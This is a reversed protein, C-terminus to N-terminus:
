DRKPGKDAKLTENIRDLSERLAKLEKELQDLRRLVDGSGNAASSEMGGGPAALKGVLNERDVMWLRFVGETTRSEVTRTAPTLPITLPKGARLIKLTTPKEGNAQVERSLTEPSDVRKEGMELVIDHKKVGAKEAPSGGIVETVVVGQGAPVGLQARLADDVPEISVGIYYESKQQAAPGLTVRYVPRVQITLPKGARLVKLPVASEGAAKLRSTLDEATALPKDALALLIDNQKLGAQASPGDARLSTVLLGQGAPIDLQSRLTDGVPQLAAGLLNDAQDHLSWVLNGEANDVALVENLAQVRAPVASKAPPTSNQAGLPCAVLLWAAMLAISMAGNRRGHSGNMKIERRSSLRGNRGRRAASGATL